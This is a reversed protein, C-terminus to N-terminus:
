VEVIVTDSTVNKYYSFVILWFYIGIATYGLVSPVIFAAEPVWNTLIYIVYAILIVYNTLSTILFFILLVSSKLLAGGTLFVCGICHCIGVAQEIRSVYDNKAAMTAVIVNIAFDLCAIIICGKRLGICYCCWKLRFM